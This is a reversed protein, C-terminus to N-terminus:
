ARTLAARGASRNGSAVQQGALVLTCRRCRDVFVSGLAYPALVVCEFLDVLHLTALSPHQLLNVICRSLASVSLQDATSALDTTTLYRETVSTVAVPPSSPMALHGSQPSTPAAASPATRFGFRPKPMLRKSAADAAADM